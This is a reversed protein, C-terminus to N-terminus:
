PRSGSPPSVAQRPPAGADTVLTIVVRATGQGVTAANHPAGRPMVFSDGATVYAVETGPHVHWGTQIGAPFDRTHVHVLQAASGQPVQVQAITVPVSAPQAAPQAVAVGGLAALALLPTKRM